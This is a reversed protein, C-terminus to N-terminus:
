KKSTYLRLRGKQRRNRTYAISFPGNVAIRPRKLHWSIRFFVKSNGVLIKANIKGM